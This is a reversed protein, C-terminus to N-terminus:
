LSEFTLDGVALFGAQDRQVFDGVLSHKAHCQLEIRFASDEAAKVSVRVTVSSETALENRLCTGSSIFVCLALVTSNLTTM